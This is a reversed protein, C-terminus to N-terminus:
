NLLEGKNELDTLYEFLVERIHGAYVEHGLESWKATDHPVV